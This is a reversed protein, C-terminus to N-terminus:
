PNANEGNTDGSVTWTNPTAVYQGMGFVPAALMKKGCLSAGENISLLVWCFVSHVM